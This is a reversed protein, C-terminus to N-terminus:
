NIVVKNLRKQGNNVNKGTLVLSFQLTLSTVTLAQMKQKNKTLLLEQYKLLRNAYSAKGKLLLAKSKINLPNIEKASILLEERTPYEKGRVVTKLNLKLRAKPSHTLLKTIILNFLFLKLLNNGKFVGQYKAAKRLRTSPTLRTTRGNVRQRRNSALIPAPCTSRLRTQLSLPPSQSDPTNNPTISNSTQKTCANTKRMSM